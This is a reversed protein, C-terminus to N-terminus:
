LQTQQTPDLNKYIV